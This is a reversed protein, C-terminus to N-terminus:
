GLLGLLGVAPVPITKRLDSNILFNFCKWNFGENKRHVGVHSAWVVSNRLHARFCVTSSRKWNWRSYGKSISAFKKKLAEALLVAPDPAEVLKPKIDQESRKVWWLEVSTGDKLSELMYPMDTKKPSSKVLTKGACAKKLGRQDKM